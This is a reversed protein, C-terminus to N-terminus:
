HQVCIDIHLINTNSIRTM